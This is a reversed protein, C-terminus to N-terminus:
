EVMTEVELIDALEFDSLLNLRHQLVFRLSEKEFRLVQGISLKMDAKLNERPLWPLLDLSLEEQKVFEVAANIVAASKVWCFRKLFDEVIGTVGEDDDVGDSSSHSSLTYDWFVLGVRPLHLSMVRRILEERPPFPAADDELPPSKDKLGHLHKWFLHM